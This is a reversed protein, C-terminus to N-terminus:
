IINDNQLEIQPKCLILSEGEPTRYSLSKHPRKTNYFEIYEKISSKLENESRYKTRYLEEQKLNSFFTECVSNDYPTGPRSFSQQVNLNRLYQM